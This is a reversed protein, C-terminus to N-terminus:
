QLYPPTGSSPFQLSNMLLVDTGLYTVMISTVGDGAGSKGTPEVNCNVAVPVKESPEVSSIVLSTVHTLPLASAAMMFEDPTAVPTAKPVVGMVAVMSPFVLEITSKATIDREEMVAIGAEGALKVTPKM